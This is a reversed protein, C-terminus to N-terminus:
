LESSVWRVYEAIRPRGGHNASAPPRQLNGFAAIRGAGLECVMSEIDPRTGAVAIAEIPVGHRLLYEAADKPADVTHIALARPLYAPPESVPPDLVALYSAHEDSFVSGSGGASRFAALNRATAIRATARADRVGPPFEIAAREVATAVLESFRQPEISGGREVFLAHLSLCGETEYLVVDRAAGEAIERARAEDGLADRGIYGVSAKAGYGIFQSQMAIGEAIRALTPDSGFAVVADFAALDVADSDGRWSQARAAERMEDLEQALTEFFARVLGDERDKVLVDCKACLAFIAPVIAVGITTRSSVVCVTGVPRAYGRPRGAREIFGDLADISGLENAITAELASTTLSFFLQDLAYEIVPVTYGVRDVIAELLRVRPPFDADAWRQAADAVARVIRRAPVRGLATM